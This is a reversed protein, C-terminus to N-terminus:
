SQDTMPRRVTIQTWVESGDGGFKFAPGTDIIVEENLLAESSASFEIENGFRFKRRRLRNGMSSIDRIVARTPFQKTELFRFYPDRLEVPLYKESFEQSTFTPAQETKIFTYLADGLDRRVEPTLNAKRMFDKTLDYFRSTEYPGNEPFTCGLFNEYFYQAASERHSTTINSDFVLASWADARSAKPNTEILFGIKYLRQAPTLFIDDLFETITSKIGRNRRFGSQTEAKITGVFRCEPTGITGDFVIVVGGPVGRAMQASILKDPVGRSKQLYEDDTARVMSEALAVMSSDDANLIRMTMSKSQASLADMIRLHFQAHARQPLVELETAYIPAVPKRDEGRKFIEHM